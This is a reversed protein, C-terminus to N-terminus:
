AKVEWRNGFEMFDKINDRYEPTLFPKITHGPLYGVNNIIRLDSLTHPQGNFRIAVDYNDRQKEDTGWRLSSLTNDEIRVKKAGADVEIRGGYCENEYVRCNTAGPGDLLSKRGVSVCTHGHAATLKNRYVLANDVSRLEVVAKSELNTLDNFAVVVNAPVVGNEPSCRFLNETVSDLCVNHVFTVGRGGGVYVNSSRVNQSFWNRGVLVGDCPAMASIGTDVRDFDCWMVSVAQAFSRVCPRLPLKTRGTPADVWDFSVGEIRLYDGGVKATIAGSQGTDSPIPWCPGDPHGYLTVDPVDIEYKVPGRAVYYAKGAEAKGGSPLVPLGTPPNARLTELEHVAVAARQEAQSRREAEAVIRAEYGVAAADISAQATALAPSLFTRLDTM